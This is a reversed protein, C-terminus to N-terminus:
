ILKAFEQLYRRYWIEHFDLLCNLRQYYIVASIIPTEM